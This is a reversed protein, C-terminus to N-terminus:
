ELNIGSIKQFEESITSKKFELVFISGCPENDEVWVNGGYRKM